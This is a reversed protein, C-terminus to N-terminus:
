SARWDTLTDTLLRNLMRLVASSTSTAGTVADLQDGYTFGQSYDIAVGRFQEKYAREGIRGGLGPTENQETFTIGVVTQLDATVALYGRITGWLGAGSFPLAYALVEGSENRHEYATLEGVKTQQITGDFRDLVEQASGGTELGFADLVAEKEAVDDNAAIRPKLWTYVGALASGFVLSLVLIFILTALYGDKM